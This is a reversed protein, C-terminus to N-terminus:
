VRNKDQLLLIDADKLLEYQNPSVWKGDPNKTIQQIRVGKKDLLSIIDGNIKNEDDSISTIYLSFSRIKKTVVIRCDDIVAEAEIISEGAERFYRLYKESEESNEIVKGDKTLTFRANIQKTSGSQVFSYEYPDGIKVYEPGSIDATISECTEERIEASARNEITDWFVISSCILFSSVM